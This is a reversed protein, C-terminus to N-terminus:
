SISPHIVKPLLLDHQLPNKDKDQLGHPAVSPSLSLFSKTLQGYHCPWEPQQMLPIYPTVPLSSHSASPTAASAILLPSILSTNPAHHSFYLLHLSLPTSFLERTGPKAQTPIIDSGSVPHQPPTPVRHLKLPPHSLVLAQIWVGSM